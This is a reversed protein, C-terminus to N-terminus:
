QDVLNPNVFSSALSFLRRSVQLDTHSLQYQIICKTLDWFSFEPWLAAQFSLASFASQRNSPINLHFLSSLSTHPQAIGALTLLREVSGRWLDPDHPRAGARSRHGLM